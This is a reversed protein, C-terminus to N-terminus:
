DVLKDTWGRNMKVFILNLSYVTNSSSFMMCTPVTQCNLVLLVFCFLIFYGHDGFVVVVTDNRLNLMDLESLVVGVM